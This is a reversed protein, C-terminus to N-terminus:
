PQSVGEFAYYQLDQVEPHEEVTFPSNVSLIQKGRRELTIEISGTSLPIDTTTVGAKIRVRYHHSGISVDATAAHTLMSLIEVDDRPPAHSGGLIPRMLQSGVLPATDHLQIRQTVYIADGTIHPVEGNKFATLYYANIDLFTWGHAESPAFSTTESYDNWTILQVLSAKDTIARNWSARLLGTNSSEAYMGAKPRVDQVAIPAMWKVGLSAAKRALNPARSVAAPTREGWSSLAYSIPAYERLNRDSTNLLVAILAIRINNNVSLLSMLRKWWDVPKNEAMFSSLVYDGNTLTYASPSRYFKVLQKAIDDLNAHKLASADLNPVIKFDRGSIEAARSLNMVVNWNTGHLGLIDVTFGDIGADAAQNIETVLDKLKWNGSRPKRELPRDRLLGGYAAHIGHEGNPNILDRQYYDSDPKRNDISIPYPPFYHAFVKRESDNPRAVGFPRDSSIESSADKNNVQTCALPSSPTESSSSMNTIALITAASLLLVMILAVLLRLRRHSWNTEM